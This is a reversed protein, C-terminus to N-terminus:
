LVEVMWPHPTLHNMYNGMKEKAILPYGLPTDFEDLYYDDAVNNHSPFFKKQIRSSYTTRKRAIGDRDDEVNNYIDNKQKSIMRRLKSYHDSLERFQQWLHQANDKLANNRQIEKGVTHALAAPPPLHKTIPQRPQGNHRPYNAGPHYTLVRRPGGGIEKKKHFAPPPMQYAAPIESLHHPRGTLAQSFPVQDTSM